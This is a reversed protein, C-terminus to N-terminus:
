LGGAAPYRGQVSLNDNKKLYKRDRRAMGSGTSATFRAPGSVLWSRRLGVPPLVEERGRTTLRLRLCISGNAASGIIRVIAVTHPLRIQSIESVSRPRRDFSLAPRRDSFLDDRKQM